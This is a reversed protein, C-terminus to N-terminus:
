DEVRFSKDLKGCRVYHALAREAAKQIAAGIARDITRTSQRSMWLNAEPSGKAAVVTVMYTTQVSTEENV